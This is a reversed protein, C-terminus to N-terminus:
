VGGSEGVSQALAVIAHGTGFGIELVTEGEQVSLMRLGLETYKKESPRALLDYWGSMRDYSASAAERPRTVRSIPAESNSM